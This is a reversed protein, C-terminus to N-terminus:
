AIALPAPAHPLEKWQAPDHGFVITAGHRDRLSRLESLSRAMEAADWLVGPLLDRDMNERTYCADATLVVNAGKDTRV